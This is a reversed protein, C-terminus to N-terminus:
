ILPGCYVSKGLSFTTRQTEDKGRCTNDKTSGEPIKDPQFAVGPFNM